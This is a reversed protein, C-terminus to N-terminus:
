PSPRFGILKRERSVKGEAANSRFFCAGGLRGLCISMMGLGQCIVIWSSLDHDGFMGSDSLHAHFHHIKPPGISSLVVFAFALTLESCLLLTRVYGTNSQISIPRQPPAGGGMGDVMGRCGM